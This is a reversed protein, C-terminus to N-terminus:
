EKIFVKKILGTLYGQASHDNVSRQYGNQSFEKRLGNVKLFFSLRMLFATFIRM